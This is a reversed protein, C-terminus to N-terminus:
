VTRSARPLPPSSRFMRTHLGTSGAPATLVRLVVGVVGSRLRHPRPHRASLQAHACHLLPGPSGDVATLRATWPSSMSSPPRRRRGLRRHPGQPWTANLSAAATHLCWGHRNRTDVSGECAQGSTGKRRMRERWPEARVTGDHGCASRGAGRGYPLQVRGYPRVATRRPRRPRPGPRRAYRVLTMHRHARRVQPRRPKHTELLNGTSQGGQTNETLGSYEWSHGDPQRRTRKDTRRVTCRCSEGEVGM